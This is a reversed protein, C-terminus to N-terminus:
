IRRLLLKPKKNKEMGEVLLHHFDGVHFNKVRENEIYFQSVSANPLEFYKSDTIKLGLIEIIMQALYFGHGIILINENKHKKLIKRYFKLARRNLSILSEGREPTFEFYREGLKSWAERFFGGLDDIGNEQFIGFNMENLESTYVVSIDKLYIKMENLTDKARKLESCYIKNIKVKHFWSGLKKAQVIGIDSLETDIESNMKLNRKSQAHRVLYLKM